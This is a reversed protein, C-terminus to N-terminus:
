RDHLSFRLRLIRIFIKKGLRGRVTFNTPRKKHTNTTVKRTGKSTFIELFIFLSNSLNDIHVYIVANEKVILFMSTIIILM